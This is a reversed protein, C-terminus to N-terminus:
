DAQAVREVLRLEDHVVEGEEQRARPAQELRAPELDLRGATGEGRGVRARDQHRRGEIGSFTGDIIEMSPLWPSPPPWIRREDSVRERAVPLGNRMVFMRA